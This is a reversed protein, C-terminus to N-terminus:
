RVPGLKALLKAPDRKFKAFCDNCCLRIEQRDHVFTYPAGREFTDGTVLCRDLPYPRVTRTDPSRNVSIAIFVLAAITALDGLLLLAVVNRSLKSENM